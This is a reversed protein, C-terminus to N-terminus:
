RFLWLGMLVVGLVVLVNVRALWSTAARAGPGAGPRGARPGLVFDHAVTLVLAALVLAMKAQFRPAHLLSPHSWLMGLGTLILVGLAIWGVTRFRRGVDRMMRRRLAEDELRRVVPVLVLAVFLMGGIWLLAAVVHLWRLTLSV